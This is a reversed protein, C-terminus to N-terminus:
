AKVAEMASQLVKMFAGIRSKRYMIRNYQLFTWFFVVAYLGPWGVRCLMRIVPIWRPYWVAVQFLRQVNSIERLNGIPLISRAFFTSPIREFLEESIDVRELLEESLQTGPYPQFFTCYATTPGIRVNLLVTEWVEEISEGPIGVMGYTHIGIGNRRLIRCSERITTEKMERGLIEERVRASGSEVGIAVMFCGAERMARAIEADIMEVRMQCSFPLGIERRYMELFVFAFERKQYLNDSLFFVTRFPYKEKVYRLEGVAQEPMKSRLYGSGYRRRMGYSNCHRCSYPCGRNLSFERNDSRRISKSAECYLGVDMPPLERLDPLPSLGNAVVEGERKTWIGEINDTRAGEAMRNVLATFSIEGEGVCVYDVAANRVIEPCYTPHPGGLVTTVGFAEKVRECFGLAGRQWGTYVPMAVVDPRYLEM